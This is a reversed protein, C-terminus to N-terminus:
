LTLLINSHPQNDNNWHRLGDDSKDFLARPRIASAHGDVYDINFQGRHRLGTSANIGDRGGFGANQTRLWSTIDLRSYGTYSTKGQIDYYLNLIGPLLWMLNADGLAVMESPARVAADRIATVSAFDNPDKMYGGLGLPSLAFQVGNANYGYSGLPDGLANGPLTLGRYSPCLYTGNTWDCGSYPQLQQHWFAYPVTEGHLDFTYIPFSQFDHSYLSLSLGLQRVNNLCRATRASEKAVALAPLLLAALIAIIAVVVLLEVLTFATAVITPPRVIKRSAPGMGTIPLFRNM